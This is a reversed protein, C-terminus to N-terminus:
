DIFQELILLSISYNFQSIKIHIIHVYHLLIRPTNALILPQSIITKLNFFTILFAFSDNKIKYRM